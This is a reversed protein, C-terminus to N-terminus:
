KENLPKGINIIIKEYDLTGIPVGVANEIKHTNLVFQDKIQQDTVEFSGSGYGDILYKAVSGIKLGYNSGVNYTGVLKKHSASLVLNCYTNIDIFDRCTEPNIGYVIKNTNKLQDLCWGMFSKRNPEFGFVNSSRLITLNQNNSINRLKEETRAKNDAYHDSPNIESTENYYILEDSTGYVKRTSLMVYHCNDWMARKGVLFDLDDNEKYWSTKYGTTISCNIVVDYTDLNYHKLQHYDISDLGLNKHLQKAIFSNTGVVIIKM